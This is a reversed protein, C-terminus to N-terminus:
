NVFKTASKIKMNVTQKGQFVEQKSADAAVKETDKM